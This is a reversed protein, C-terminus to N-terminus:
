LIYLSTPSLYFSFKFFGKNKAGIFFNVETVFEGM